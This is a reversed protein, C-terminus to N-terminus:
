PRSAEDNLRALRRNYAALEEDEEDPADGVGPRASTASTDGSSRTTGGRERSLRRWMYVVYGAFLPWEFVYAWSLTNGSLARTVQWWCMAGFACVLVVMVVTLLVDRRGSAADAVPM